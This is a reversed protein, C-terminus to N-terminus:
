KSSHKKIRVLYVDFLLPEYGGISSAKSVGVEGFALDSPVLLMSQGGEKMYMIGEDFGKVALRAENVAFVLTDHTGVNSEFVTGNLLKMNYFVYASDHTEAQKGTGAVVDLYYLGSAKMQFNLNPNESLFSNIKEQEEKELKDRINCSTLLTLFMTAFFMFKGTEFIQKMLM